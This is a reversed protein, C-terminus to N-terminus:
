RRWTRCTATASTTYRISFSFSSRLLSRCVVFVADYQLADSKDRVKTIGGFQDNIIDLALKIKYNNSNNTSSTGNSSALANQHLM